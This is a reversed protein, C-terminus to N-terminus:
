VGRNNRAEVLWLVQVNKNTTPLDRVKKKLTPIGGVLLYGYKL